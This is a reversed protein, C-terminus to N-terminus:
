VQDFNDLYVRYLSDSSSFGKDRRLEGEGGIMPEMGAASWRIVNRHVHQAISVSNLFGMPLVRSVLVCRRGSWCTPVLEDPVDRNFGMFPKWTEPIAFLYFFCKVDESSLLAVQGDELLFGSFGALSPLTGVDGRLSQCLSNM